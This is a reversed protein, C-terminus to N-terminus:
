QIYGLSMDELYIELAIKKLKEVSIQKPANQLVKMVVSFEPDLLEQEQNVLLGVILYQLFTFRNKDALLSDWLAQTQKIDFEQSLLLIVWRLAFFEYEIALIKLNKWVEPYRRKLIKGVSGLQMKIGCDTKDLVRIFNNQVEGMLRSFTFFAESESYETYGDLADEVITYYVMMLIENMGQVYKIGPNLKTYLFLIRTMIDGHTESSSPCLPEFVFPLEPRTRRIDNLIEEVQQKDKFFTNWKSSAEQSLPHDTPTLSPKIILEKKFEEYEQKSKEMSKHWEKPNQPFQGLLLRWIVSRLGKCNEPIGAMALQRIKDMDIKEVNLSKLFKMVQQLEKPGLAAYKQMSLRYLIDCIPDALIESPSKQSDTGFPLMISINSLISM